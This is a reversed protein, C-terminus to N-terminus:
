LPLLVSHLGIRDRIMRTMLLIPRGRFPLGIKNIALIIVSQIPHCKEVFSFTENSSSSKCATTIKIM